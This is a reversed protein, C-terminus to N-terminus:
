RSLLYTMKLVVQQNRLDPRGPLNGQLGDYVVYLDSGPKYIFNYRVSTSFQRTSSNYQSLSRITMRPSLTYDLRMIGLNVVFAGWPLDVDNRQLTFEASARSTARVGLTLDIDHRTGEYFTQPSYTFREYLRGAPNTDFRFVWEYFRYVGAPITVDPQIAFPQDLVDLWRNMFVNLYAGNQFRTGVMHHIRRTILRNNQDTTYDFTIMPELVRILGGPRPNRELHLSTTRIGTRPVFGVEANFNDEIDTFEAYNNWRNNLFLVRTQFAQQNDTVGPTATRALFSHVSFSRTPAFVADAAVTRNFRADDIAEKNVVLGGVRSREGVDRSYRAVLFNEGPRGFAEGTQLQMVALNNRGMKGTMRAGGLLPVPQGTPSLGIRRSFFLDATRQNGQNGV